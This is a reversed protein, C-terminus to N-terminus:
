SNKSSNKQINQRIFSMVDLAPRRRGTPNRERRFLGRTGSVIAALAAILGILLLPVIIFMAWNWWEPRILFGPM